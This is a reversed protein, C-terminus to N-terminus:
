SPKYLKCPKKRSSTPADVGFNMDTGAIHEIEKERIYEKAVTKMREAQQELAAIRDVFGGPDAHIMYAEAGSLDCVSACDCIRCKESTPWAPADPNGEHEQWIDVASKIMADISPLDKRSFEVVPSWQGYRVNWIKVRVESVGPYVNLVIYAYFQFQFSSKVDEANWQKWGSKWDVVLLQEPSPTRLLLDVEAGLKFGWGKDHYTMQGSKSGVGGDYRVIVNPSELDYIFQAWKYATRRAASHAEGELDPRAGKLAEDVFSQLQSTNVNSSGGSSIYEEIARSYADHVVQGVEAINSVANVKGSEIMVAQRPCTAYRELESRRILPVPDDVFEDNM